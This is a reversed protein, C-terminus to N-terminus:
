AVAGRVINYVGSKMSSQYRETAEIQEKVNIMKSKEQEM